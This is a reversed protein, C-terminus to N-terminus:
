LPLFHFPSKSREEIVTNALGELFSQSAQAEMTDIFFSEGNQLAAILCNYFVVEKQETSINQEYQAFEMAMTWWANSGFAACTEFFGATQVSSDLSEFEITIDWISLPGSRVEDLFRAMDASKKWFFTAGQLNFPQDRVYCSNKKSWSQIMGIYQIPPPLVSGHKRIRQMALNTPSEFIPVGKVMIPKRLPAPKSTSDPFHPEIFLLMFSAEVSGQSASIRLCEIMESYNIATGFGEAHCRALLLYWEAHNPQVSDQVEELYGQKIDM